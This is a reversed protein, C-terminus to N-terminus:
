NDHSYGGDIALILGVLLSLGKEIPKIQIIEDEEGMNEGDSLGITVAPIDKDIFASLESTSPTLRTTINMESLIDRSIKNLPHSFDTGGPSRRALHKFEVHAGSLSSLEQTQNEIQRAIDEVLEESESRIEFKLKARKPITNYSTGAEISGLNIATKPKSPTPIELIRNILDNMNIIAGESNFKTWDYSEPVRYNIEGRLMGISSYSLRGLKVGEVCVGASIPKKFNDLFFRLGELDGRGLSRASGMLIINAEPEIGYTELIYPLTALAALGLSDDAVGAGKVTDPLITVTHDVKESFFTDLHAVLLINRDSKGPIVGLANGLEDVHCNLLNNSIYRNVLCRARTHERFTPAPTESIMVLNSLLTEQVREYSERDEQFRKIFDTIKSKM